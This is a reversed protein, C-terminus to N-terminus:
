IRSESVLVSHSAKDQIYWNEKTFRKCHILGLKSLTMSHVNIEDINLIRSCSGRKKEQLKRFSCYKHYKQEEGLGGVNLLAWTFYGLICM